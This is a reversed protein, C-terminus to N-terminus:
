FAARSVSAFALQNVKLTRSHCKEFIRHKNSKRASWRFSFVTTFCKAFFGESESVKRQCLWSITIWYVALMDILYASLSVCMFLIEVYFWSIRTDTGCKAWHQSFYPFSIAVASDAYFQNSKRVLMPPCLWHDTVCKTARGEEVVTQILSVLFTKHHASPLYEGVRNAQPLHLFKTTPLNQLCQPM